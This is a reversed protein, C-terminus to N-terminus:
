RANGSSDFRQGYIGEGSGDQNTSQWTVIFNGNGVMSVKAINQHDPLYTNVRFESGQVVGSADFRQAYVGYNSGDQGFSNWTIVYNGNDAIGVQSWVQHSNTYTNVRVESGQALGASNYRQAYIGYLSGDQIWSSWTVVFDGDPDMAVSPGEQDQNTTTNVRFEPGVVSGASNYRQAYVGEFSGDQGRSAWVIIADGSDDMAVSPTFQNNNTFTNARFEGSLPNGSADYRRAYVGLASGDQGNSQWSILFNGNNDVAIAPEDQAGTTFTNVQFESGQAVGNADFRKAFIGFGNADQGAWTVVFSGDNNMAVARGFGATKQDGITPTNVRFEAGQPIGFRNYRQAYVGLGSGDQGTSTWVVVYNGVSDTAVSSSFQNSNTFTNVRFEGLNEPPPPPIYVAEYAGMDFGPGQPRAFGTIDTAPAGVSTGTDRAPSNPALNLGDDSTMLINDLGDIDSANAFLPDSSSNGTGTYGGQVISNSVNVSGGNNSISGASNNDWLISNKITLTTTIGFAENSISGKIGGPSINNSFSTNTITMSSGAQNYIAAGIASRNDSFVSNKVTTASYSSNYIGGGATTTGNKSLIANTITTPSHDEISIGGGSSAFNNLLTINNINNSSSKYIRIGGGLSNVGGGNAFGFQVTLGDLITNASNEISVVHNVNDAKNSTNTIPIVNPDDNGAIDGSLITKNTKFDRVLSTESGAFGGYIKVGSTLRFTAGRDTTSSTPKYTGAAVWIEKASSANALALAAQLDTYANNWSAGSNKGGANANVYIIGGQPPELTDLFATMEPTQQGSAAYKDMMLTYDAPNAVLHVKFALIVAAADQPTVSASAKVSFKKTGPVFKSLANFFAHADADHLLHLLKDVEDDVEKSKASFTFNDKKIESPNPNGKKIDSSNQLPSNTSCSSLILASATLLSLKKLNM